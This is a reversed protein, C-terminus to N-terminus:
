EITSKLEHGHWRVHTEWGRVDVVAAGCANCIRLTIEAPPLESLGPILYTHTSYDIM